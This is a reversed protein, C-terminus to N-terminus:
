RKSSRRFAFPFLREHLLKPSTMSAAAATPCLSSDIRGEIKISHVLSVAVRMSIVMWLLRGHEM